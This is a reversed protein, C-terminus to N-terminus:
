AYRLMLSEPPSSSSASSPSSVSPETAFATIVSTIHAATKNTPALNRTFQPALIAALTPTGSATIETVNIASPVDSGSNTVAILEMILPYELTETPLIIPAFVRLKSRTIPIGAVAVPIPIECFSDNISVAGTPRNTINNNIKGNTILFFPKLHCPLM